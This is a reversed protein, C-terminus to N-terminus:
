MNGSMHVSAIGVDNQAQSQTKTEDIHNTTPPNQHGKRHKRFLDRLGM